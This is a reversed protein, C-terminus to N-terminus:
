KKIAGRCLKVMASGLLAMVSNTSSSIATATATSTSKAALRM